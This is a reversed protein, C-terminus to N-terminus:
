REGQTIWLSYQSIRSSRAPKVHFIRVHGEDSNDRARKMDTWLLQNKKKIDNYHLQAFAACCFISFRRVNSSSEYETCKDVAAQEHTARSHVRKNGNRKEVNKGGPNPRPPPPPTPVTISHSADM